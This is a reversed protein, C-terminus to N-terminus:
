LRTPFPAVGQMFVSAPRGAAQPTLIGARQPWDFHGV